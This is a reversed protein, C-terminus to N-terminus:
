EDKFFDEFQYDGDTRISEKMMYKMYKVFDMQSLKGQIKEMACGSARLQEAQYFLEDYAELIVRDCAEKTGKVWHKGDKDWNALIEGNLAHKIEEKEHMCAEGFNMCHYKGM